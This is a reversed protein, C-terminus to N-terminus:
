IAIAEDLISEMDEIKRFVDVLDIHGAVAAAETLNPYVPRGFLQTIMPNVFFLDYDSHNLLYEAVGYSPRDSKDSVGVIAIVQSKTLAGHVGLSGVM